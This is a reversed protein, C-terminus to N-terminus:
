RDPRQSWRGPESSWGGHLKRADGQRDDRGGGHAGDGGAAIIRDAVGLRDADLELGLRGVDDGAGEVVLLADVGLAAVGVAREDGARARGEAAAVRGLDGELAQRDREAAARGADGAHALHEGALDVHQEHHVVGVVAEGGAAADHGRGVAGARDAEVGGEVDDASAVASM